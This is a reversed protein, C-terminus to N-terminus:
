PAAPIQGHFPDAGITGVLEELYTRSSVRTLQARALAYRSEFDIDDRPPFEQEALRFEELARVHRHWLAIDREQKVRLREQYWDSALLAERAFMGRIEPHEVGMGFYSGHAMIELLARLPPCAAEVSGDEFYNMAVRRQTEVIAGVGACFMELDQLEPRLLELPFVSDPTEFIRGLFHDVFLTSVRYGLRSALVTRGEFTFDEIKELYGSDILFRPDREAVRMRCWIEPVLLSVDHDVRFHPGIYGASTTFGTDGTLIASVLANNLDVVPWLANFPGKTLAGESGFGTTAPSKGTLSSIFEMFLEPLEQFHIPGYVALPPLGIAADPPSNRRGALVANVPFHVPRGAPIDRELRAAIEALYTERPATLDPRRQLYRPNQSPKGNVMRPHSSAVVFGGSGAGSEGSAFDELLRKMPDSYRDFEVIHDVLARVQEHTLPEYNSIFTGPSAMDTEAQWDVGPRIAEDPRQFLLTECNAVLKVSENKFERDLDNLSARPLVVSATIDDEVQVKEAPYFDPRLKYIRWAGDRDYGIRLYNSVLPENEFKLEHGLYGNIRDVTFHERWDDGWEPRYYRKVTFLLQRTTQPLQKVWENHDDTYDPSPTFLRIVSGLSREPSLIPRRSRQDPPRSKYIASFDRKLIEGIKEMDSRYDRVYVPGKLLANAISKSIESKGGGSVTCPKHCLTGRPRSGILRWAKGSLQKELRIRFGSPLIYVARPRLTLQQTRGDHQWRVFGDRLTFASAEPVYYVDPYRRDIAYGEPKREVLEGLLHMGQEFSAKKLSVTRDAYFEQGLVYTAFAIAGGAHEEESLGFLNAAFSIQTKVEKKCYGYYNDALITVMVGRRDRCCIKFAAGENYLEDPDRWCMGDRRQRDTADDAHPLGLAAKKMGVLHPALIVCGTHGTWHAVDLAADNEPLHPDGGNGFISEVFDLNSVLSGPAFLRTEMSKAADTGTAPCVLPRLLLSVFLRAPEGQAATFPLTLVDPPPRLAAALLAAFTKKPVAQKDAPIPFGGEAIHFVGRTTRRDSAPNHLVGQPVRYSRLYPSSFSQADPPLSLTRALGARDLVFTSAPLRPAGEPCCDALYEDLFAQIRTDAPCLYKGLLREKQYHSRLLPSAIQLFPADAVSKGSSQGLAALKLHLYQVLELAAQPTAM